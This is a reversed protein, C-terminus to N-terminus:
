ELQSYKILHNYHTKSCFYSCIIYVRTSTFNKIYSHYLGTKRGLKDQNHQKVMKKQIIRLTDIVEIPFLYSSYKDNQQNNLPDRRGKPM